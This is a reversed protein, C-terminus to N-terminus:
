KGYKKRRKNLRNELARKIINDKEQPPKFVWSKLGFLPCYDFKSM